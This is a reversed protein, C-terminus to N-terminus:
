VLAVVALRAGLRTGRRGPRTGAPTPSRPDDM